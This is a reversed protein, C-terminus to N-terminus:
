YGSEFTVMGMYHSHLSNLPSLFYAAEVSDHCHALPHYNSSFGLDVTLPKGM